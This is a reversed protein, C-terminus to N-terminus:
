VEEKYDEPGSLPLLIYVILNLQPDLLMDIGVKSLNASYAINKIASVCGGRRIIKAHETFVLLKELRKFGDLTSSHLFFQCGQPCTTINAFVGALFDFTASKNYAPEALDGKVFIDLLNDLIEVDKNKSANELPLLKNIVSEHKSLNNLLM